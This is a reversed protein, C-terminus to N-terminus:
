LKYGIGINFLTKSEVSFLIDTRFSIDKNTLFETGFLAFITQKNKNGNTTIDTISQHGLGYILNINKSANSNYYLGINTIDTGATYSGVRGYIYNTPDEASLNAIRSYMIGIKNLELFTAYGTGGSTITTMGGIKIQNSQANSVLLGLTFTITLLVKKM